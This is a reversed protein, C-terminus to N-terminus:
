SFSADHEITKIALKLSSHKKKINNMLTINMLASSYRKKKHKGRKKKSAVQFNRLCKHTVLQRLSTHAWVVNDTACPRFPIFFEGKLSSWM